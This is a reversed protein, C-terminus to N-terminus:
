HDRVFAAASVRGFSKSCGCQSVHQRAFTTSLNPRELSQPVGLGFPTRWTPKRSRGDGFRMRPAWVACRGTQWPLLESAFRKSRTRAFWRWEQWRRRRSRRHTVHEWRAFTSGGVGMARPVSVSYLIEDPELATKKYGLHFRSYPVTREGRVSLLTVSADYALLAPPTDAAPSGNCINGGLTGRNQNAISGTWSAAQVLLPLERAITENGVFTPSHQPQVSTCLM